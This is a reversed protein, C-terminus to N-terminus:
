TFTQLERYTDFSKRPKEGILSLLTLWSNALYASQIHIDPRTTTLYNLSGVMKRYLTKNVESTNNDSCFKFNYDLPTCVVKCDKMNFRQILKKAYKSQSILTKGDQRWVEIGLCYDMKGLDKMEFAQSLNAKSEDILSIASRTIILDDM